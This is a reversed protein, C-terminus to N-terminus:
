GPQFSFKYAMVSGTSMNLWNIFRAAEYWSVSTAPKNVGRTDKTIGLGGAANANDIMQESIEYKGIRFTYPVSGAPNPSGTTDAVNGPNGITVFDVNFINAGSGFTDARASTEFASAIIFVILFISKM